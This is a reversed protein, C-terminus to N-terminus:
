KIVFGEPNQVLNTGTVAKLPLPAIYHQKGPTGVMVVKESPDRLAAIQEVKETRVLDFWRRFEGALEWGSEEVIEDPTASPM